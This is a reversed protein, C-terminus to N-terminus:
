RKSEYRKNHHTEIANLKYGQIKGIMDFQNCQPYQSIHNTFALVLRQLAQNHCLLQNYQHKTLQKFREQEQSSLSQSETSVNSVNTIQPQTNSQQPKAKCWVIRTLATFDESRLGALCKKKKSNVSSGCKSTPTPICPYTRRAGRKHQKHTHQLARRSQSETGVHKYGSQAEHKNLPWSRAKPIEAGKSVPPGSHDHNRVSLQHTGKTRATLEM